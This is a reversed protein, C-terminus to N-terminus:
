ADESSAAAVVAHGFDDAGPAPANLAMLLGAALAVVATAATVLTFLSRTNNNM